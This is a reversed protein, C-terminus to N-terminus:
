LNYTLHGRSSSSAKKYGSKGPAKEETYKNMDIIYIDRM